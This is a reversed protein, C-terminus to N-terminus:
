SARVLGEIVSLVKSAADHVSWAQLATRAMMRREPDKAWLRWAEELREPSLASQRIVTAGGIKEIAKANHYQHDAHAHPYPVLVCPVGFLALEAIAGAGSRSIALDASALAEAMEPEELFPHIEYFSSVCLREATKAAEEYLRPGTVQVWRFAGNGVHLAMTLVAENIALAGQSGGLSLTVFPGDGNRSEVRERLRLAREVLGSRLPMGTRISRCPFSESAEEFVLCAVKAFRGALRHTRGPVANQEHIIIPIGLLKAATLVPGASFGGTSFVVDPRRDSLDRRAAALARVTQYVARLGRPTWLRRLPVSSFGTFPLGSARCEAAEQGRTSGLYRVEHNRGQALKAVELAPYVHGGTGGGTVVIRM